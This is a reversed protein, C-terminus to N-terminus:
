RVGFETCRFIGIASKNTYDASNSNKNISRSTNEGRWTLSGLCLELGWGPMPSWPSGKDTAEKSDRSAMDSPSGGLAKVRPVRELALRGTTREVLWVLSLDSPSCSLWVISCESM